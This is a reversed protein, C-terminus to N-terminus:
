KIGLQHYLQPLGFVNKILFGRHLDQLLEENSSEGIAYEGIGQVGAWADDLTRMMPASKAIGSAVGESKGSDLFFPDFGLAGSSGAGFMDAFLGLGDSMRFVSLAVRSPDYVKKRRSAKQSETMGVGMMKIEERASYALYTIASSVGFYHATQRGGLAEQGFHYRTKKNIAAIPHMM